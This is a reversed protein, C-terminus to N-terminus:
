REEVSKRPRKAARRAPPEGAHGLRNLESAVEAAEATKGVSEYMRQERLLATIIQQKKEDHM